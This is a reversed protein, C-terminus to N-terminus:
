TCVGIYTPTIIKFLHSDHTDAVLIFAYSDIKKGLIGSRTIEMQM